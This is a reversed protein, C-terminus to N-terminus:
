PSTRESHSATPSERLDILWDVCRHIKHRIISGARAEDGEAVADLLALLAARNALRAHADTDVLAFFPSLEGQLRMQERTLRASQSLAALEIQTDDTVRRWAAVEDDRVRDLRTRIAAIESPDARRAALEVCANTIALYHAALDRLAVRSTEALARLAFATPDADDSVFSGGNRGRRTVILGRERLALLAERATAPAVGFSRALETEAPLREGSPLVGATIADAIRREVLAARGADGIPQFVARHLRTPRGSRTASSVRDNEARDARDAHPASRPSATRLSSSETM